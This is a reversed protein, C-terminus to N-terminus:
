EYSRTARWFSPLLNTGLAISLLLSEIGSCVLASATCARGHYRHIIYLKHKWYWYFAEAGPPVRCGGSAPPRHIYSYTGIHWLKFGARHLGYSFCTDEGVASGENLREDFRHQHARTLNYILCGGNLHTVRRPHRHRLYFGGFLLGLSPVFRGLLPQFFVHLSPWRTFDITTAPGEQQLRFCFGDCVAAYRRVMAIFKRDLRIDDDLWVLYVPRRPLRRSNLNNLITNRARPLGLPVPSELYQTPPLGHRPRRVESRTAIDSGDNLIVLYFSRDTQVALDDLLNALTAARNRTPVAVIVDGQYPPDTNM